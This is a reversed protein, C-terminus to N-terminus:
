ITGELDERMKTGQDFVRALVFLLLVSLWPTVSFKWHIDIPHGASSVHEAIKGIVFSMIELALLSWAITQLRTANVSVFPNGQRVTEVIALLRTFVIHAVPVGVLGIVMIARMGVVLATSAGIPHAGLATMIWESAILSATLLVLIFVGLLLNLKILVRLLTRSLALSNAYLESM